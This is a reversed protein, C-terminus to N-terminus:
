FYVRVRVFGGAGFEGFESEKSGFPLYGVLLIESNDNLSFDFWPFFLGSGDDINLILYTSGNLLETLPYMEGLYVYNQALNEGEPGLMNMWDSFTYNQKNPKGLGNHYYEAMLYLGNEFTYDMGMLVQTYNKDYYMRNTAGEGWIGLGFLAGSFDAGLLRRKQSSEFFTQYDYDSQSKEAYSLSVDFGAIYKKIKLARTSTSWTEGVSVIGTFLGMQGWPIEVKLANIGTKEYTPDLLNKDNFLDTPNWAYGTGWPLQQKGIRVNMHATYLTAYANDLFTEDKYEIDFLPRVQQPPLASQTLYDNRIRYPLFDLLNFTTAGHYTRYIYDGNFTLNESIDASLDLRLKNYDQLMVKGNLKQPFFQNEYYGYIQLEQPYLQRFLGLFLLTIAILTKMIMLWRQRKNM